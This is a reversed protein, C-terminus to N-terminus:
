DRRPRLRLRPCIAAAIRKGLVPTAIIGAVLPVGAVSKVFTSPDILFGTAVFFSPIFLAKGVFELKATAARDRVAANVALGALFAGVIDPLNIFDAVMGAVAMIGLMLVFEADENDRV